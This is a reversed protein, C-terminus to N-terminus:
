VCFSLSGGSPSVVADCCLLVALPASHLAEGSWETLVSLVGAGGSPRCPRPAGEEGPFVEPVM